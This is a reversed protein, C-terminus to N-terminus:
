AAAAGLVQRRVDAPRNTTIQQVGLRRMLEVDEPLDVTWVRLTSGGRLWGQVQAMHTRVYDVGPGAVGARRSEIHRVGLATARRLIRLIAQGRLGATGMAANGGIAAAAADVEDVLMCLHEESVTHSLYEVSDPDFSMFGITVTGLRSTEPEWGMRMLLELVKEELRLGFPSPHKLELALEVPRGAALLLELLEELTLLQADATGRDAPLDERKWSYFDLARLQELTHDAVAGTGTSTRDLTSDHLLVIQEDKTLHVDCEVGDAGDELAQLYAARTHEPFEASAGRHAFIKPRYDRSTM